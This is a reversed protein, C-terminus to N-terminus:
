PRTVSRRSREPRAPARGERVSVRKRRRALSDGFALRIAEDVTEVFIFSVDELVEEPVDPMDKENEKPMVVTRIGARHAALVKEKVGGIGLVRGRLTIEGTMALSEKPAMDRLASLMSVTIPLGASPGDKPIAGEPVHVHVDRNKHFDLPLGLEEAHARLFTYGAQASEKMVDGLQGTLVLVGKGKTTSTEVNLIDGGTMTWAMGVSVGVQPKVEARLDTYKPPGLLAAVVDATVKVAKRPKETVVKRAVKRCISAIQRELERVGAERTYRQIITDLGDDKFRVHNDKLGSERLQKPMLFLKAIQTKELRTYGSLHVVEMRDHLPFPIEYESNATTIFFVERLDFDVELYHDSFSKNQEPDLVELLASSPDGRFDMSM